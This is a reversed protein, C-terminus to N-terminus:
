KRVSGLLLTEVMNNFNRNENEAREEIQKILSTRLRVAKVASEKSNRQAQAM